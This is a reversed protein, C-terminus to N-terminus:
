NSGNRKNSQQTQIATTARKGPPLEANYRFEKRSLCMEFPSLSLLFSPFYARGACVLKFWCLARLYIVKCSQVQSSDYQNRCFPKAVNFIGIENFPAVFVLFLVLRIVKKGKKRHHEAFPDIDRRIERLTPIIKRLAWDVELWCHMLTNRM